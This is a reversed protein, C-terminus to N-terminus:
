FAYIRHPALLLTITNEVQDRKEPSVEDYLLQVRLLMAQKIAAPITNAWDTVPSGTPAYGAVYDIQVADERDYTSPWVEGYNLTLKPRLANTDVTYVDTDLTQLANNEDYYRVQTVWMVPPNLLALGDFCRATLRLARQVLSRRLHAETLERAAQIHSTLLADDEHGSPSGNTDLRLHAYATSLDIPEAPPESLKYVTITM